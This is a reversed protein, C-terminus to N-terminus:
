RRHNVPAYRLAYDEVTEDAVWSQYSRQEPEFGPFPYAPQPQEADLQGHEAHPLRREAGLHPPREAEIRITM